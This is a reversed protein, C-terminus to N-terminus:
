FARNIKRNNKAGPSKLTWTTEHFVHFINREIIYDKTTSKIKREYYLDWEPEGLILDDSFQNRNKIWWEREFFIGDVGLHNESLVRFKKEAFTNKTVSTIDKRRFMYANKEEDFVDFFDEPLLIDSNLYGFYKCDMKSCCDFIDKVYPLERDNRITQKSNRKLVNHVEFSPPVDAKEGIYNLSVWRVNPADRESMVETAVRQLNTKRSDAYNVYNISTVILHM